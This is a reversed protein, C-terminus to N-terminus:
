FYILCASSSVLSSSLSVLSVSLSLTLFLYLSIACSISPSYLCSNFLTHTLLLFLCLSHPISNATRTIMAYSNGRLRCTFTASEWALQLALALALLLQQQQQRVAMFCNVACQVSTEGRRQAAPVALTPTAAVRQMRRRRRRAEVCACMCFTALFSTFSPLLHFLCAFCKGRKRKDLPFNWQVLQYVALRPFVGRGLRVHPWPLACTLKRVSEWALFVLVLWVRCLCHQAPVTGERERGRQERM